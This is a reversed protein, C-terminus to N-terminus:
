KQMCRLKQRAVDITEGIVFCQLIAELKVRKMPKTVVADAGVDLFEQVDDDMANGTVAIICGLFGKERIIRTAEIGNMVPMTYDMFILHLDRNEQYMLTAELGNVAALSKVKFQTLLRQLMKLNSPTDDVCMVGMESKEPLLRSNMGEAKSEGETSVVRTGHDKVLDTMDDTELHVGLADPNTAVTEEVASVMEYTSPNRSKEISLVSMNTTQDAPIMKASDEELDESRKTKSDDPDSHLATTISPSMVNSMDTDEFKHTEDTYQFKVDPEGELSTANSAMRATKETKYATPAVGVRSTNRMSSTDFYHPARRKSPKDAVVREEVTLLNLKISYALGGSSPVSLEVIGNHLAIIEYAIAPSLGSGSEGLMDGTFLAGYPDFFHEVEKESLTSGSDQFSIEVTYKDQSTRNVVNNRPTGRLSSFSVSLVNGYSSRSIACNLLCKIAYTIQRRDALVQVPFVSNSALDVSIGKPQLKCSLIDVVDAWVERMNVEQLNMELTGEEIQQMTLYSNLAEELYDTAVVMTGLAEKSATNTHDSLRQSIASESVFYDLSMALANLPIRTEHFMYRMFARKRYNAKIQTELESRVSYFVSLHSDMATFAVFGKAVVDLVLYSMLTTNPNLVGFIALLYVIPFLCMVVALTTSLKYKLELRHKEERCEQGKSDVKENYHKESVKYSVLMYHLALVFTFSSIVFLIVTGYIDIGHFQMSFGTAITLFISVIAKIDDSSPARGFEPVLVTYMLLPVTIIWSCWNAAYTVVGWNDICINQDILSIIYSIVTILNVTLMSMNINSYKDTNSYLLSRRLQGLIIMSIAGIAATLPTNMRNAHTYDYRCIPLDSIHILTTLIVFLCVCIIPIYVSTLSM